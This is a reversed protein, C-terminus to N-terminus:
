TETRWFPGHKLRSAAAARGGSLIACDPPHRRRRSAGAGPPPVGSVGRAGALGARTACAAPVRAAGPQMAVAVRNTPVQLGLLAALFDASAQHGIASVFGGALRERAMAPSLPGDCRFNLESLRRAHPPFISVPMPWSMSRSPSM